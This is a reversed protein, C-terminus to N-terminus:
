NAAHPCSKEHVVRAVDRMRHLLQSCEWSNAALGGINDKSVDKLDMLSHNNIGMNSAEGEPETERCLFIGDLNFVIEHIEKRTIAPTIKAVPEDPMSAAATFGAIRVALLAFESAEARTGIM